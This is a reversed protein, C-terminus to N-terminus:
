PRLPHSWWGTQVFVWYCLSAVSFLAILLHALGHAGWGAALGIFGAGALSPFLWRSGNAFYNGPTAWAWGVWCVTMLCFASLIAMLARSAVSHLSM